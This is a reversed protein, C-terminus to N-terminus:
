SQSKVLFLKGERKYLVADTKYSKVVQGDGAKEIANEFVEKEKESEYRDISFANNKLFYQGGTGPIPATEGERVWLTEDVYM